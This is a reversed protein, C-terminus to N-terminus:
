RGAQNQLEHELEHILHHLFAGADGETEADCGSTGFGYLRLTRRERALLSAQVEGDTSRRWLQDLRVFLLHNIPLDRVNEYLQRLVVACRQHRDDDPYETAREELFEAAQDIEELLQAKVELTAM